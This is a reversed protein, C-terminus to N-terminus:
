RSPVGKVPLDVSELCQEPHAVTGHTGYHVRTLLGDREVVAGVPPYLPERARVQQDFLVRLEDLDM